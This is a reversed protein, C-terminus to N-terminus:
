IKAIGTGATVRVSRGIERVKHTRPFRWFALV